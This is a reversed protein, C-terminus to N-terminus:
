RGGVVRGKVVTYETWDTACTATVLYNNTDRNFTASGLPSVSGLVPIAFRESWTQHYMARLSFEPRELISAGYFNMKLERAWTPSGGASTLVPVGRPGALTALDSEEVDFCEDLGPVCYSRPHIISQNLTLVGQANRFRSTFPQIDSNADRTDPNWPSSYPALEFTTWKTPQSTPQAGGVAPNVVDMTLGPYVSTYTSGNAQVQIVGDKQGPRIELDPYKENTVVAIGNGQGTTVPPLTSEPTNQWRCTVQYCEMAEPAFNTSMDPASRHQADFSSGPNNKNCTVVLNLDIHNTGAEQCGQFNRKGYGPYVIYNCSAQLVDYQLNWNGFFDLAAPPTPQEWGQCNDVLALSGANDGYGNLRGGNWADRMPSQASWVQGGDRVYDRNRNSQPIIRSNYANHAPLGKGYPGDLIPNNIELPCSVTQRHPGDYYLCPGYDVRYHDTSEGDRVTREGGTYQRVTSYARGDHYTVTVKIERETYEWYKQYYQWTVGYSWNAMAGSGTHAMMCKPIQSALQGCWSGDAQDPFVYSVPGENPQSCFGSEGPTSPVSGGGPRTVALGGSPSAPNVEVSPTDYYTYNGSERFIYDSLRRSGPKAEWQTFEQTTVVPGASASPAPAAPAPEAPIGAAALFPAPAAPLAALMDTLPSTAESAAHAAPAALGTLLAAATAASAFTAVLARTARRM